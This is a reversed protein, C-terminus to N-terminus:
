TLPYELILWLSPVLEGRFMHIYRGFALDETMVLSCNLGGDMSLHGRNDGCHGEITKKKKERIVFEPYDRIRQNVTGWSIDM